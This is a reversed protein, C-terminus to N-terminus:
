VNLFSDQIELLNIFRVQTSFRNNSQGVNPLNPDVCCKFHNAAHDVLLSSYLILIINVQTSSLYCNYYKKLHFCFFNQVCRSINQNLHVKHFFNHQSIIVFYLLIYNLGQKM